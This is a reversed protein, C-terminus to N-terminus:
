YEGNIELYVFGIYKWSIQTTRCTAENHIWHTELSLRLKHKLIMENHTLTNDCPQWFICVTTWGPKWIPLTQTSSNSQWSAHTMSGTLLEWTFLLDKNIIIGHWTNISGDRTFWLLISLSGISRSLCLDLRSRDMSKCKIEYPNSTEFIIRIFIIMCFRLLSVLYAMCIIRM